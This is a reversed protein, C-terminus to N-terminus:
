PQAKQPLDAGCSQVVDLHDPPLGAEHRAVMREILAAFDDAYRDTDFLPATTRAAVLHEHLSRRLAPEHALKLVQAKYAEIDTTVCQAPLGVSKLLSSAVRSVFTRGQLTV